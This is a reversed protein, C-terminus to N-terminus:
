SQKLGLASPTVLFGTDADGFVTNRERGWFWYHAGTYACIIADLRDELHKRAMGGPPVAPLRKLELAPAADKLSGLYRRLIKLQAVREGVSGKKYALRYDLGFFRM